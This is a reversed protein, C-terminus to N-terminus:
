LYNSDFNEINNIVDLRIEEQEEPTLHKKISKFNNGLFKDFLNKNKINYEFVGDVLIYTDFDLDIYNDFITDPLKYIKYRRIIYNKLGEIVSFVQNDNIEYLNSLYKSLIGLFENNEFFERIGNKNNLKVTEDNEDYLNSFILPTKSDFDIIIGSIEYKIIQDILNNNINEFLIDYFNIKM